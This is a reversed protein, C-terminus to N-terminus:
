LDSTNLEITYKKLYFVPNWGRKAVRSGSIGLDQELNLFEYGLNYFYEARKQDIFQFSGRYNIDAKTFAAMVFGNGIPESITFAVYKDDVRLGLCVVEFHEADRLLRNFAILETEKEM